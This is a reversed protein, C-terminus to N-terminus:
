LAKLKLPGKWTASRRATHSASFVFTTTTCLLLASGPYSTPTVLSRSATSLPRCRCADALASWSAWGEVMATDWCRESDGRGPRIGNGSATCVKLSNFGARHSTDTSGVGFGAFDRLVSVASSRATTNVFTFRPLVLRKWLMVSMRASRGGPYAKPWTAARSGQDCQAPCWLCEARGHGGRQASRM